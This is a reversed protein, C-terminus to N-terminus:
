DRPTAELEAKTLALKVTDGEIAAVAHMPISARIRNWVHGHEVILKALTQDPDEIWVGAVTGAKGDVAFVECGPGFVTHGPPTLADQVKDEIVETVISPFTTSLGSPSSLVEEHLTTQVYRVSTYPDMMLLQSRNLALEVHEFTTALVKSMPALVSQHSLGVPVDIVLMSVRNAVPDLVLARVKGARGDVCEASAGLLIPKM